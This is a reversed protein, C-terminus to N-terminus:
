LKDFTFFRHCHPWGVQATLQIAHLQCVAEGMGNTSRQERLLTLSAKPPQPLLQYCSPLQLSRGAPARDGYPDKLQKRQWGTEPFEPAGDVHSRRDSAVQGVPVAQHRPRDSPYCQPHAEVVERIWWGTGVWIRIM